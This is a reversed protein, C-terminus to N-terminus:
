LFSVILGPRFNSHGSRLQLLLLVDLFLDRIHKIMDGFIRARSDIRLFWKKLQFPEELDLGAGARLAARRGEHECVSPIFLKFLSRTISLVM